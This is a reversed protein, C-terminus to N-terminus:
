PKSTVIPASIKKAIPVNNIQNIACFVLISSSVIVAVTNEVATAVEKKIIGLFFTLMAKIPVSSECSLITENITSAAVAAATATPAFIIYPLIVKILKDGPTAEDSPM